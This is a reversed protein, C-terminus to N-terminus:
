WFAGNSIDCFLCVFLLSSTVSDSTKPQFTPVSNGRKTLVVLDRMSPLAVCVWHTVQGKFFVARTSRQYMQKIDTEQAFHDLPDLSVTASNGICVKFFLRSSRPLRFIIKSPLSPPETASTSDDCSTQWAWCRPNVYCQDFGQTLMVSILVKPQTRHCPWWQTFPWCQDNILLLLPQKNIQWWRWQASWGMYELLKTRSESPQGKVFNADLSHGCRQHFHCRRHKQWICM